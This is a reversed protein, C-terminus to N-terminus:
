GVLDLLNGYHFIILYDITLLALFLFLFVGTKKRLVLRSILILASIILLVDISYIFFKETQSLDDDPLLLTKIDVHSGRNEINHAYAIHSFASILLAFSLFLSCIKKTKM